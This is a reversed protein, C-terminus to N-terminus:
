GQQEEGEGSTRPRVHRLSQRQNAAAHHGLGQTGGLDLDLSVWLIHLAVCEDDVDVHVQSETELDLVAVLIQFIRM